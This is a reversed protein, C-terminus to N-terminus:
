PTQPLIPQNVLGFTQLGTLMFTTDRLEGPSLGEGLSHRGYFLVARGPGMVVAKTLSTRAYCLMDEVLPVTWTHSPPPVVGTKETLTVHIGLCYRTNTCSPLPRRTLSSSPLHSSSSDSAGTVEPGKQRQSLVDVHGETQLNAGFTRDELDSSRAAMSMITPLM